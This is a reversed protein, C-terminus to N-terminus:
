QIIIVQEQYTGAQVNINMGCSGYANDIAAQIPTSSPNFTAGERWWGNENVYIVDAGPCEVNNVMCNNTEIDEEVNNNNDACVTVALTAKCPCEFPGVTNTYSASAALAPVPDELVNTGDIYIATNSTGADGNGRNTVTYTVTFDAEGIEESKSTITLDPAGPMEKEITIDDIFWGEYNNYYRDVTDFRFRIVVENGVYDKLSLAIDGQMSGSLQQLLEWNVGGDTSLEVMKM